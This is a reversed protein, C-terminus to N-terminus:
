PGAGGEDDSDPDVWRRGQRNGGRAMAAEGGKDGKDGRATSLTM